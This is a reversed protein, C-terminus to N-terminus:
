NRRPIEEPDFVYETSCFECNVRIRGDETFEDIEESGFESIIALVRERSCRCRDALATGDFVRVGREHFLRYLLRESGVTPDILESRDLTDLLALSEIWADDHSVSVANDYEDNGSPLDVRPRRESAQPLFQALVGGARWQEVPGDSGPQVQKAVGVKIETPIQESQRFYGKAAAELGKEDLEVIGQYSRAHEGQDITLALIGKGLLSSQGFAFSHRVKDLRTEDYRAYARVADPATYDAMILDVPGDSKTQLVFRGKLKLSTGLLVTLVLAEALLGAVPEPYRHRTLIRDLVPGLQVIRGRVELGDIQFPVAHDDGAYGFDGLQKDFSNM